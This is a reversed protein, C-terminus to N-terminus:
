CSELYLKQNTPTYQEIPKSKRKSTTALTPNKKHTHSSNKQSLPEHVTQRAPNL